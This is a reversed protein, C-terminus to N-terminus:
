GKTAKIISSIAEYQRAQRVLAAPMVNDFVWEGDINLILRVREGNPMSWSVKWITADKETYQMAEEVTSFHCLGTDESRTQVEMPALLKVLWLRFRRFMIFPFRESKIAAIM